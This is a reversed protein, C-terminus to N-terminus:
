AVSIRRGSIQFSQSLLQSLKLYGNSVIRTSLHPLMHVACVGTVVGARLACCLTRSHMNARLGGGGSPEGVREATVKNEERGDDAVYTSGM